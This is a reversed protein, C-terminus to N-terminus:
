DGIKTLLADFTGSRTDKSNLEKVSRAM